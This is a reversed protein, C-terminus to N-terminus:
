IKRSNKRRVRIVVKRYKDFDKLFERFIDDNM